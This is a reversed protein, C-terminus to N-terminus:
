RLPQYQPLPHKERPYLQWKADLMLYAAQGFPTPTAQQVLRGVIWIPRQQMNVPFANKLSVVVLQNAPPSPKHICAGYYPAVLITRASGAMDDITLPFGTLRVIMGEALPVTPANDWEKRIEGMKSMAAPDNDQISDVGLRTLINGPNWGPPSLEQWQMERVGKPPPPVSALRAAEIRARWFSMPDQNPSAAAAGVSAAAVSITLLM